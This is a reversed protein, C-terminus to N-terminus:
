EGNREEMFKKFADVCEACFIRNYGEKEWGEPLDSNHLYNYHDGNMVKDYPLYVFKRCRSCTFKITLERGESRITSSM